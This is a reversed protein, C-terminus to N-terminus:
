QASKCIKTGRLDSEIRGLNYLVLAQGSRWWWPRQQSAASHFGEPFRANLDCRSERRLACPRNEVLKAPEPNPTRSKAIWSSSPLRTPPQSDFGKGDGGSLFLRGPQRPRRPRAWPHPRGPGAQPPPPRRGPKGARPAGEHACPGPPPSGWRPRSAAAPRPLRVRPLRLPARVSSRARTTRRCPAPRQLPRRTSRGPEGGGPGEEKRNAPSSAAIAGGQARPASRPVEAARPPGPPPEAPFGAARSWPGRRPSRPELM